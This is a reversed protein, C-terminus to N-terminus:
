KSEGVAETISERLMELIRSQNEKISPEFFPRKRITVSKKLIFLPIRKGSTKDRGLILKNGFRTNVVVTDAFDRPRGRPVGAPTLAGGIPIALYKGRKPTITAGFEHTKAYPVNTGVVGVVAKGIISVSSAISNRLRGSRVKLVQGSLKRQKIYRKLMLVVEQMARVLVAPLRAGLKEVAQRVEADGSLNLKIEDAM